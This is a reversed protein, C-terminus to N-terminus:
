PFVHCVQEEGQQHTQHDHQQPRHQHQEGGEEEGPILFILLFPLYVDQMVSQEIWSADLILPSSSLNEPIM